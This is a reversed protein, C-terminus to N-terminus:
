LPQKVSLPKECFCCWDWTVWSGEVGGRGEVRVSRHLGFRCLTGARLRLRQEYQWRYALHRRWGGPYGRCEGLTHDLPHFDSLDLDDFNM